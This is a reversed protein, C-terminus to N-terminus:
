YLGALCSCSTNNSSLSRNLSSDCSSCLVQSSNLNCSLCAFPCAICNLSSDLYYKSLCDCSLNASGMGRNLTVNCNNCIPNTGNYSCSICGLPCVSCVSNADAYLGVLCDCSLNASGMTRNLTANCSNCIASSGNFSCSTCGVPCGVCELLLNQYYGTM